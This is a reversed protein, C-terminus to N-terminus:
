SSEGKRWVRRQVGDFYLRTSYYGLDRLRAGAIMQNATNNAIGVKQLILSSTIEGELAELAAPIRDTWDGKRNSRNQKASLNQHRDVSPRDAQDVPLNAFRWKQHLDIAVAPDINRSMAADVLNWFPDAVDQLNPASAKMKAIRECELFYRRIQRGQETGSMM